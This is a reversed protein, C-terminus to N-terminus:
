EENSVEIDKIATIYTITENKNTISNIKFNLTRKELMKLTKIMREPNKSSAMIKLNYCKMENNLVESM